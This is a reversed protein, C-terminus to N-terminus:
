AIRREANVSSKVRMASVILFVPSIAIAVVLDMPGDADCAKRNPSTRAKTKPSRPEMIHRDLHFDTIQSFILDIVQEKGSDFAMIVLIQRNFDFIAGSTRPARYRSSVVPIGGFPRVAQEDTESYVLVVSIRYFDRELCRFVEFLSVPFASLHSILFESMLVKQTRIVQKESNEQVLKGVIQVVDFAQIAAVFLGLGVPKCDIFKQAQSYDTLRGLLEVQM